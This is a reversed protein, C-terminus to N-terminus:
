KSLAQLGALHTPLACAPSSCYGFKFLLPLGDEEFAAFGSAIM